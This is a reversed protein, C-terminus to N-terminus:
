GNAMLQWVNASIAMVAAAALQYLIAPWQSGGASVGGSTEPRGGGAM